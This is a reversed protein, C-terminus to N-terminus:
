EFEKFGEYNDYPSLSFRIIERIKIPEFNLAKLVHSPKSNSCASGSSAAVNSSIRKLLIQNNIGQFRVSIIGPIKEKFENIFEIREGFVNMLKRKFESEQRLLIDINTNIREKCIEAAKGFGVIQHTPLTGARLGFEQEGGHILPNVKKNLTDKIYLIGIGKPGYIKHASMSLFDIGPYDKLNIDIKGVAHTADTHFLIGSESCLRSIADIDNISGIENNAWMISVLFTNKNIAKKLVGIDVIGNQNVPLYTVIYGMSEMYKCSEIISSHEIASVIIHTKGFSKACKIVQNNSETAGSTFILQESRVNFLSAVQNRANEVASNAKEALAYYKSNANGYYESLFPLMADYVEPLIKTTAANDLYIM